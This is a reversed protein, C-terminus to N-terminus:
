PASSLLTTGKGVHTLNSLRWIRSPTIAKHHVLAIRSDWHVFNILNVIKSRDIMTFKISKITSIVDTRLRMEVSDARCSQM